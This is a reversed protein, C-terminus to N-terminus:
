PCAAVVAAFDAAKLSAGGVLAGDINPQRLLEGANEPKVSGGYQIRVTQAVEPAYVGAIVARVGACVREAEDPPCNHGTGIAWVPEYALVLRGADQGSVGELAAFLQRQVVSDTKGAQREELTEGVCCIPILGAAQAALLKRNVARDNNGFYALIDADFDPEPVGFRGRQESHGVIVYRCGAERLMEPAIEGTYAGKSKWFVSQSGLAIATGELFRAVMDLATVPPCIVVDARKIATIRPILDAMLVEAERRLGNMKWNGAIIKRRM